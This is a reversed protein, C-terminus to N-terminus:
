RVFNKREVKNLNEVVEKADNEDAYSPPSNLTFYPQQDKYKRVKVVLTTTLIANKKEGFMQSEGKKNFM